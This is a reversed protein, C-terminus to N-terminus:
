RTPGGTASASESAESIRNVRAVTSRIRGVRAALHLGVGVQQVQELGAVDVARGM